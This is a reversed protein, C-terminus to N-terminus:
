EKRIWLLFRGFFLLWTLLGWRWRRCFWYAVSPIHNRRRRCWLKLPVFLIDFHDIRRFDYRGVLLFLDRPGRSPQVDLDDYIGPIPQTYAQNLHGMADMPTVVREEQEKTPSTASQIHYDSVFVTQLVHSATTTLNETYNILYSQPQLGADTTWDPDAITTAQRALQLAEAQGREIQMPDLVSSWYQTESEALQQRTSATSIAERRDAM